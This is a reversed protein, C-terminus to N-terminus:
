FILYEIAVDLSSFQLKCFEDSVSLDFPKRNLEQKSNSGSNCGQKRCLYSFWKWKIASALNDFISFLEWWFYCVLITRIQNRSRYFDISRVFLMLNTGFIGHCSSRHRMSLFLSFEPFSSDYKSWCIGHKVM